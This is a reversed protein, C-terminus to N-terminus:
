VSFRYPPLTEITNMVTRGNASRAVYHTGMDVIPKEREPVPEGEEAEEEAAEPEVNLDLDGPDEGSPQEPKVVSTAGISALLERIGDEGGEYASMDNGSVGLAGAAMDVAAGVLDGASPVKIGFDIGM